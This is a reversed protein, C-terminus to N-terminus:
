TDKARSACCLFINEQPRINSLRPFTRKDFVFIPCINSTFFKMSKRFDKKALPESLPHVFALFKGIFHCIFTHLSSNWSSPPSRTGRKEQLSMLLTSLILVGKIELHFSLLYVNWISNSRFVLVSLGCSSLISINNKM